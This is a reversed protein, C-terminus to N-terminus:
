EGALFHKLGGFDTSHRDSDDRAGGDRIKSPAHKRSCEVQLPQASRSLSATEITLTGASSQGQVCDSRDRISWVASEISTHGNAAFGVQLHERSPSRQVLDADRSAIALRSKALVHGHEVVAHPNVAMRSSNRAPVDDGTPIEMDLNRGRQRFSLRLGPLFFCGTTM